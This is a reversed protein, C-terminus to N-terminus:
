SANDNNVRKLLESYTTLTKEEVRDIFLFGNLHDIEHQIIRAELGTARKTILEGELTYGAYEIDLARPVEGMIEGCNLCGEYDKQIAESLSTFTPNILATNPIEVESKRKKTFATGFVIIRKSVGIQPAAVGVAEKNEMVAFLEDILDRLWPASFEFDFVPEAKKRLIPNDKELPERM